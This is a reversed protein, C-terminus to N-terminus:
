FCGGGGAPACMPLCLNALAASVTVITSTELVSIQLLETSLLEATCSM